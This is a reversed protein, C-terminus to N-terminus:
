KKALLEELKKVRSQLNEQESRAKTAIEKVADFEDRSVLDMSCLIKEIRRKFVSEFEDKVGSATGMASNAIRAIDDLIGNDTQM